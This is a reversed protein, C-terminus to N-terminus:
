QPEGIIASVCVRLQILKEDAAAHKEMLMGKLRIVGNCAQVQVYIHDGPRTM